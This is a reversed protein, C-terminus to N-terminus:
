CHNTTVRRLSGYKTLDWPTVWQSPDPKVFPSTELYVKGHCAFRSDMIRSSKIMDNEPPIGPIRDKKLDIVSTTKEQQKLLANLPVLMTNM